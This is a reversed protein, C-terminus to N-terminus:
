FPKTSPNRYVEVDDEGVPEDEGLESEVMTISPSPERHERREMGDKLGNPVVIVTDRFDYDHDPPLLVAPAEKAQEGLPNLEYSEVSGDQPDFQLDALSGIAEGSAFAVMRGILQEAVLLLGETELQFEYELGATVGMEHAVTMIDANLQAIQTIPLLDEPGRVIDNEWDIVFAIVRQEFPDFYADMVAGLRLGQESVVPMGQMSILSRHM